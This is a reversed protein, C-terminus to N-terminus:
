TTCIHTYTDPPRTRGHKMICVDGTHINSCLTRVNGVIDKLGKNGPQSIRDARHGVACHHTYQESLHSVCQMHVIVFAIRKIRARLVIPFSCPVSEALLVVHAPPTSLSIQWHDMAFSRLALNHREAVYLVCLRSLPSRKCRVM